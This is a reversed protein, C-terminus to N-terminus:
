KQSFNLTLSIVQITAPNITTPSNTKYAIVLKAAVTEGAEIVTGKKVEENNITLEYEIAQKDNDSLGLLEPLENLKADATGNNVINWTYTITDGKEKLAVLGTVNTGSIGSNKEDILSKGITTAKFSNKDFYLSYNTDKCKNGYKSLRNVTAFGLVLAVSAICIAIIVAVKTLVENKM